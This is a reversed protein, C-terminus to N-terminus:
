IQILGRRLATAIAETRSIVNLKNFINRLHSKVTTESIFLIAAMERNSKGSALLALVAQERETLPQETLESALRITVDAPFALQGAHVTRICQLLEERRAEKQLYGKAGAKIARCIDNDTNFTTLLIVRASTDLRRIEAIASAGDLHPMRMDLLAIDPKHQQWLAVAMAGDSAQAVVCMDQQRGIIAALGELVTVHDDAILVRICQGSQAQFSSM